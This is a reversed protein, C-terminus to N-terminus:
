FSAAFRAFFMHDQAISDSRWAAGSWSLQVSVTSWAVSTGTSWGSLYAGPVDDHAWVKGFDAGVFPRVALAARSGSALAFPFALENRWTMGRDGFVRGDRYGRVAFPGALAVQESPYLVDNSWQGALTSSLQTRLGFPEFGHTLSAGATVKTFQARPANGPLGPPDNM